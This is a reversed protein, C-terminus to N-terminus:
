CGDYPAWNDEGGDAMATEFVANQEAVSADGFDSPSGGYAVWTSYSFQYLGYHGSSNTIQSDGGSEREIVCQQFGSYDSADVSSDSQSASSSTATSTAAPTATSTDTSPTYTSTATSAAPTPSPMAPPAPIKAPKAPIRLKQGPQIINADPIQSKNAWYIVTWADADRYYRSAITSLSDGSRVSYWVTKAQSAPKSHAGTVVRADLLALSSVPLEALPAGSHVAGSTVSQAVATSAFAQPSFCIAAAM